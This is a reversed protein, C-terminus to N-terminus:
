FLDQNLLSHGGHADWYIVFQYKTGCGQCTAMFYGELESEHVLLRLCRPPDCPPM